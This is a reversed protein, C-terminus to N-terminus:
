CERGEIADLLVTLRAPEITASVRLLRGNGLRVELFEVGPETTRPRVEVFAPTAVTPPSM